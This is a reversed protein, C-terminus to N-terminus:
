NYTFSLLLWDFLLWLWSHILTLVIENTQRNMQHGDVCKLTITWPWAKRCFFLLLFFHQTLHLTESYTMLMVHLTLNQEWPYCYRLLLKWLIVNLLIHDKNIHLAEELGQPNRLSSNTQDPFREQKEDEAKRIYYPCSQLREAQLTKGERM